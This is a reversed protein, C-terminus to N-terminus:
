GTTCSEVKFWKGFDFYRALKRVQRGAAGLGRGGRRVPLRHGGRRREPHDFHPFYIIITKLNRVQGGIIIFSDLYPQHSAYTLVDPLFTGPRWIGTDTNYVDVSSLYGLLIPSYGGAMVIDQKSSCNSFNLLDVDNEM